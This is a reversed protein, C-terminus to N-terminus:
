CHRSFPSISINGTQLFRLIFFDKTFDVSSIGTYQLTCSAVIVQHDYSQIYQKYLTTDSPYMHKQIGM